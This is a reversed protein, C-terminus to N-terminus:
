DFLYIKEVSYDAELINMKGIYFPAEFLGLLYPDYMMNLNLEEVRLSYECNLM